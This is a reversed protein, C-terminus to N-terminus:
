DKGHIEFGNSEVSPLGGTSARLRYNGAKDVSLDDFVAVGSRTREKDHGKLHGPDGILELKIELERDTVRNGNQDLVEVAVPPSIKEGQDADSPQVLFQLRSPNSGGGGGGGGGANTAMATFGVVGVGSVVANLTNTGVSPGLTWRTQAEGNGDTTSTTPAVSGGGAGVVWSVARDPIGNGNQDVLRVVLPDSLEQGPRASQNDGSVRVLQDATGPVATSTFTVPSGELGESSATATQPGTSLGLIWSTQARGDPGTTSSAPDVSGNPTNWEVPVGAVPNGFQDSVLVTLPDPLATGVAATQADGGAAGIRAASSSAVAAEFTVELGSPVGDGVVRAIVRQSGITAGVVWRALAMGLSDTSAEGPTVAAGPVETELTFAVPQNPVPEGRRDVVKVVLPDPLETGAPGTQNDGTIKSIDAPGTESPLTLDSGGCHALVAFTGLTAGYSSLRRLLRHM